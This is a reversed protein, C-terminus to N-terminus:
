RLVRLRLEKRITHYDPIIAAVLHWFNRSHNFEKVHCLEHVIVYDRMEAPLFLIRYNFSLNGKKSCSGWRTTQNRISIRAYQFGYRASFYEVRDQVVGLAAPKHKAYEHRSQPFPSVPKCRRFYSLKDALWRAKARLFQEILSAGYGYPATIVVSGDGYVALRM